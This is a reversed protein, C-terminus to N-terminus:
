KNKPQVYVGGGGKEFEETQKLPLQLQELNLPPIETVEIEGEKKISVKFEGAIMEEKEEKLLSTRIEDEIDQLAETMRRRFVLSKVMQYLKRQRM